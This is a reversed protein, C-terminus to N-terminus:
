QWHSGVVNLELFSAVDGNLADDFKVFGNPPRRGLLWHFQVLRQQTRMRQDGSPVAVPEHTQAVGYRIAVQNDIVRVQQNMRFILTAADARPQHLHQHGVVLAEMLM